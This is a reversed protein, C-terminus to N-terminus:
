PALLYICSAAQLKLWDCKHLRNLQKAIVYNLNKVSVMSIISPTPELHCFAYGIAFLPHAACYCLTEVYTVSNALFPSICAIIFMSFDRKSIKFVTYRSFAHHRM